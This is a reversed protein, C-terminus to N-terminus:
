RRPSWQTRPPRDVRRCSPSSECIRGALKRGRARARAIRVLAHQVRTQPPAPEEIAARPARAAARRRRVSRLERPTLPTRGCDIACRFRAAPAKRPVCVYVGTGGECYGFSYEVGGVEVGAHFLGVGALALTARNLSLAAATAACVTQRRSSSVPVM